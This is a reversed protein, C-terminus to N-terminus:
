LRLKRYSKVGIWSSNIWLAVNVSCTSRDVSILCPVERLFAQLVQLSDAEQVQGYM